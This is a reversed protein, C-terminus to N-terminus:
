LSHRRQYDRLIFAQILGVDTMKNDLYRGFNSFFYKLIIKFTDGASVLRSVIMLPVSYM